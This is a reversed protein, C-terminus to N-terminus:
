PSKRKQTTCWGPVGPRPVWTATQSWACGATRRWTPPLTPPSRGSTWVATTVPCICPSLAVNCDRGVYTYLQKARVEQALDAALTPMVFYCEGDEKLQLISTLTRSWRITM